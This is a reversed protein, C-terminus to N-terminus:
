GGKGVVHGTKPDIRLNLKEGTATYFVFGNMM